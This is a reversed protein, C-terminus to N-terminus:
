SDQGDRASHIATLIRALAFLTLSLCAQGIALIFFIFLGNFFGRIGYASLTILFKFASLAIAFLSLYGGAKLFFILLKDPPLNILPDMQQLWLPVQEEQTTTDSAHAQPQSKPQEQTPEQQPMIPVKLPAPEESPQHPQQSM